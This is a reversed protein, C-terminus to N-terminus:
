QGTGKDKRRGFFSFLTTRLQKFFVLVGLGAAMIAQVIMSGSGADLYAYSPLPLFLLVVLLLLFRDVM